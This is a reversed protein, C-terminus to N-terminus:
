SMLTIKFSELLNHVLCLMFTMRTSTVLGFGLHSSCLLLELGLRLPITLLRYARYLTHHM